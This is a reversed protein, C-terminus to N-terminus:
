EFVAAVRRYAAGVQAQFCIAASLAVLVCWLVIPIAYPLADIHQFIELLPFALLITEVTFIASLTSVLGYRLFVWGFFVAQAAALVYYAIRPFAMPGALSFGLAVWLAALAALLVRSKMAAKGLLSLPLAVLLFGVLLIELFLGSVFVRLGPSVVPLVPPPLFHSFPGYGGLYFLMGALGKGWHGALGILAMWVGCFAAAAFCGRLAALGIPPELARKSFFQSYSAAFSPFRGRLYYEMTKLAAYTLLLIMFFIVSPVLIELASGGTGSYADRPIFTGLAIWVWAAAVLAAVWASSRSRPQQYVRRILFLGFTFLLILHGSFFYRKPPGSAGDNEGAWGAAYIEPLASIDRIQDGSVTTRYRELTGKPEAPVRWEFQALWEHFSPPRYIRESHTGTLADHGFIAAVATQAQERMRGLAADDPKPGPPGSKSTQILDSQNFGVDYVQGKITESYSGTITKGDRSVLKLETNWGSLTSYGQYSNAWRRGTPDGANLAPEYYDEPDFNIFSKGIEVNWNLKKFLERAIQKQEEDNVTIQMVSAPHFRFFLGFFLALGAVAAGLLITDSRQWATLHLPLAVEEGAGEVPLPKFEPKQSLAASLEDVSQFRQAPNKELCKLIAKEVHDPIAAEIERPSAPTHHVQKYAVAAATDGTFATSGTFLEYLILGLAYIDTRQDVTKGEAQEPAMYSPTGIAGLTATSAEISRAIGFDMVKANGAQDIMINEPKLDRHVVGQAHAERLGDCIQQAVRIGSRLGMEGFRWLVHRLSDGDVYEMSIYASGDAARNFEHIRCVNKHTIKRALRLENKFREIVAPNAAIEPKLVKLAVVEGTERDRARYVIGMGGHGAESLIEYRQELARPASPTSRRNEPMGTTGSGGVGATPMDDSSPGRSPDDKDDPGIM